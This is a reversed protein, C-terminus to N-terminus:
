RVLLILIFTYLAKWQEDYVQYNFSWGFFFALAGAPLAVFHTRVVPNTWSVSNVASMICLAGMLALLVMAGFLIYDMRSRGSKLQKYHFM